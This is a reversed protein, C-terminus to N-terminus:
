REGRLADALNMLVAREEGEVTQLLEFQDQDVHQTIRGAAMARLTAAPIADCEVSNGVFRRARYDKPKRKTPRTPLGLSTIQPVTVAVREFSAVQDFAEEPEMGDFPSEMGAGAYALAATRILSQGIGRVINADIDVGSPDHDGFYYIATLRDHYWRDYISEAAGHLFSISPYGRTPMLAVDWPETEEILVGTLAEKEVWIEPEVMADDWLARRYTEATRRLAEEPSGYTRPRRMWRTQDAIWGYDLVGSRRMEGALRCVTKMYDAETKNVVGRSVLRYFLGRLTQPNDASLEAMISVRIATMEAKTRRSM